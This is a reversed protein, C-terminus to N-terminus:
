TGIVGHGGRSLTYRYGQNHKWEWGLVQQYFRLGLLSRDNPVPYTVKVNGGSWVYPTPHLISISTLLFGCFSHGPRTLVSIDLPRSLRTPGTTIWAGGAFDGRSFVAPAEIQFSQGIRPTGFVKFHVNRTTCSPGFFTYSATQASLAAPLLLVAALGSLVFSRM